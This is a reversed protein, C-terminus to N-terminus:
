LDSVNGKRVSSYTGKFFQTGVNQPCNVGFIKAM